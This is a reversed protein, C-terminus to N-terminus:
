LVDRQIDMVETRTLGTSEAVLEIEIGKQLLKSAIAEKANQEVEKAKLTAEKTKQEAEKNKQEAEKNKQETERNMQEAKKIDQMAKQKIQETAQIELEIERKAAEEDMIQKLRSDYILRQEQTTSLEEWNKFTKRLSEDKMSIEELEKFVDHYIKGNRHDVMGLLLLWRALVSNWPDLKDRKWDKMLKAMEIFHFEMVNTLKAQNEDEYLHYSTHFRETENFLNFNLINIAIVTRLESYARGRELPRSYAKSWYYLSRKVMDYKNTFQIEINIWEDSDTVVLLDLRSRKDDM